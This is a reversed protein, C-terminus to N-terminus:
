NEWIKGLLQVLFFYEQGPVALEPFSQWDRRMKDRKLRAQSRLGRINQEQLIIIM